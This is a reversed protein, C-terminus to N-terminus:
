ATAMVPHAHAFRRKGFAIAPAEIYRYMLISAPVTLTPTLLLTVLVTPWLGLAWQKICVYVVVHILPEHLLYTSYSRTGLYRAARSLFMWRLCRDVAGPVRDGSRDIRLWAVFGFWVLYILLSHVILACGLGVLLPVAPFRAFGPLRRYCLRTAIGTAFLPVAGPLFSPDIFDGLHGRRYAVYAFAAAAAVLISGGRTRLGWMALPAVLYFQWELSLSWAPGLFTYESFPLVRNSIAGHLLAFHALLNWVLGEGRLSRQEASLLEPQPVYPGWPHDAFASFHLHTAAIGACLCLLYVPYIRLFRRSLYAVYPERKELILHTIVFGSIIIFLEVADLACTNFLNLVPFAQDAATLLVIHSLVVTWALWARLGDISRFHDHDLMPAFDDAYSADARSAAHARAV